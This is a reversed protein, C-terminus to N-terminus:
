DGRSFSDLHTFSDMRGMRDIYFFGDLHDVEHQIVRAEFGKVTKTVSKGEPTLARFTVKPSRPVMGRYGPISLCGEWDKRKKGSYRLVRINIFTQFPFSPAKPYRLNGKCEMVLVRWPSGVQNAALGVGKERRMTVKMEGLFKQFSKKKLLSLPVTKTRQRLVPSGIKVIRQTM